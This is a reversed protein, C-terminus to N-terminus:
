DCIISYPSLHHNGGIWTTTFRILKYISTTWEHVMLAGVICYGVEQKIQALEHSYNVRKDSMRIGMGSSWSIKRENNESKTECKLGKLLTSTHWNTGSVYSHVFKAHNGNSFQSINLKCHCYPWPKWWICVHSVHPVQFSENNITLFIQSCFLFVCSILSTLLLFSNNNHFTTVKQHYSVSFLPEFFTVM